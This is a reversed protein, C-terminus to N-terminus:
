ASHNSSSWPIRSSCVAARCSRGQPPYCLAACLKEQTRGHALSSAHPLYTLSEFSHIVHKQPTIRTVQRLYRGCSPFLQVWFWSIKRLQYSIGCFSWKANLGAVFHWELYSEPAPFHLYSRHSKWLRLLLKKVRAEYGSGKTIHDTQDMQLCCCRLVGKQTGSSVTQPSPPASPLCWGPPFGSHGPCPATPVLTGPFELLGSVSRSSEGSFSSYLTPTVVMSSHDVPAMSLFITGYNIMQLGSMDGRVSASWLSLGHLLILLSSNRWPGHEILFFVFRRGKILLLVTFLVLSIPKIKTNLIWSFWLKNM